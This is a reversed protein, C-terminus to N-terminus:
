RLVFVWICPLYLGTVATEPMPLPCRNVHALCFSVISVAIRRSWRFLRPVARRSPPNITSLACLRDMPLTHSAYRRGRSRLSCVPFSLLVYEELGHNLAMLKSCLQCVACRGHGTLQDAEMRQCAKDVLLTGSCRATGLGLVIAWHVDCSRRMGSSKGLVTAWRLQEERDPHKRHTFHCHPGQQGTSVNWRQCGILGYFTLAPCAVTHRM